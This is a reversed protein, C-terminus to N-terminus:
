NLVKLIVASGSPLLGVDAKVSVTEATRKGRSFVGKGSRAAADGSPQMYRVM